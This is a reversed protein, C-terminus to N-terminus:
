RDTQCDSLLIQLIGSGSPGNPHAEEELHSQFPVLLLWCGPCFHSVTLVPALGLQFHGPGASEVPQVPYAEVARALGGGAGHCHHICAPPLVGTGPLPAPLTFAFVVDAKSLRPPLEPSSQCLAPPVPSQTLLGLPSLGSSSPGKDSPLLHRPESVLTRLGLVQGVHPHQTGLDLAWCDEEREKWPCISGWIWTPQSEQHPDLSGLEWFM